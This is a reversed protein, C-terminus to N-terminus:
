YCEGTKGWMSRIYSGEDEPEPFLSAASSPRLTGSYNILNPVATPSAQQAPAALSSATFLLAVCTLSRM